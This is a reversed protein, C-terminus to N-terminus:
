GGARETSARIHALRARPSRARKDTGRSSGGSTGRRSDNDGVGARASVRRTVRSDEGAEAASCNACADARECTM